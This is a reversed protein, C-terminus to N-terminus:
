LASLWDEPLGRGPSCCKPNLGKGSGPIEMRAADAWDMRPPPPAYFDGGLGGQATKQNGPVALTLLGPGDASVKVSVASKM